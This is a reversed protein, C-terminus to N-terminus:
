TTHRSQSTKATSPLSPKQQVLHKIKKKDIILNCQQLTRHILQQYKTTPDNQILHLNNETIFIHVKKCYEQSNIIVVTKGKDAQVIIAFETVLKQNLKRINYLQRKQTTKQLNGSEYIQKLKRAAM